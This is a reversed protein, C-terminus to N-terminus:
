RTECPRCDPTAQQHNCSGDCFIPPLPVLRQTEENWEYLVHKMHGTGTWETYSARHEHALALMGHIMEWNLVVNRDRANMAADLQLGESELPSNVNRAPHEVNLGWYHVFANTQMSIMPWWFSSWYLHESGFKAGHTEILITGEHAFLINGQGAGHYTVFADVDRMIQMDQTLNGFTHTM